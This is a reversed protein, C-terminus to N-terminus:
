SIKSKYKQPYSSTPCVDGPAPQWLLAGLLLFPVAGISQPPQESQFRIVAVDIGASSLESSKM